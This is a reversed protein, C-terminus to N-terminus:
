FPIDDEFQLNKAKLQEVLKPQADNPTEPTSCDDTSRWRIVEFEPRKRMGFQTKFPASTAKIVPVAGPYAMRVNMIKSKLNGVARRGGYSDTIFTYDAGTRPNVLYLYRTDKWPDAPKGDVGPRWLTEDHDPLDDREPHAQGAATVRHEVPKGDEWKVWVTTVGVAVLPEDPLPETKDVVYYGDNYKVMQGRIFQGGSNEPVAFGDDGRPTLEKLMLVETRAQLKTGIAQKHISSAVRPEKRSRSHAPERQSLRSIMLAGSLPRSGTDIQIALAALLNGGAGARRQHCPCHALKKESPEPPLEADHAFRSGQGLATRRSARARPQPLRALSSLSRCLQAQTADTLERKGHLVMAAFAAGQSKTWNSSSLQRGSLMLVHNVSVAPARYLM